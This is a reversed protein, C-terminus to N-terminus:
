KENKGLVCLNRVAIIMALSFFFILIGILTHVYGVTLDFEFYYLSFEMAFVRFINVIMAVPFACLIIIIRAKTTRTTLYGVIAGIALLSIMSRLGSCAQVVQLTFNPLYIVNGERYVPIGALMGLGVSAKSVLLQLPITLYSYIQSPVPIMFLLLFFPFILEKLLSFGFLFVVVGASVFIISYSALTMIEAFHSFLYMLLSFLIIILGWWTPARPVRVLDERKSWVIYLFVPLIFFGHANDESTAWSFVLRRWVPFYAVFFALAAFSVWLYNTTSKENRPLTM